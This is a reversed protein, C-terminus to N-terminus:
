PDRSKSVNRIHSFRIGEHMYQCVNDNCAVVNANSSSFNKCVSFVARNELRGLLATVTWLFPVRRTHIRPELSHQTCEQHTSCLVVVVLSNPKVVPQTSPMGNGGKKLWSNRPRLTWLPGEMPGAEDVNCKLPQSVGGAIPLGREGVGRISQKADSDEAETTETPAERTYYTFVGGGEGFRFVPGM